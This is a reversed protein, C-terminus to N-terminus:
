AGERYRYYEERTLCDPKEIRLSTHDSRRKKAREQADQTRAAKRCAPESCTCPNM